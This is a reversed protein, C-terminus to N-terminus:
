HGTSENNKSKSSSLSKEITKKVTKKLNEDQIEDTIEDIFLRDGMNLERPKQKEEATTSSKVSGPSLKISSINFAKLKSLIEKKYFYLEQLWINSDVHILLHNNKLLYPKMHMSLPPSFIKSWHNKIIKLSLGEWIGLDKALSEFTSSAKELKPLRTM